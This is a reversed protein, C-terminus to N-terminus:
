YEPRGQFSDFNWEESNKPTREVVGTGIPEMRYHNSTIQMSKSSKQGRGIPAREKSACDDLRGLFISPGLM